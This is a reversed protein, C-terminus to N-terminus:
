INMNVCYMNCLELVDVDCYHALIVGARQYLCVNM